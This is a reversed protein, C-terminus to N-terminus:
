HASFLQSRSFYLVFVSYILINVCVLFLSSIVEPILQDLVLLLEQITTEPSFNSIHVSIGITECVKVALYGPIKGTSKYDYLKFMNAVCHAEQTTLHMLTPLKLAVKRSM